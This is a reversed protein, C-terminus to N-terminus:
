AEKIFALAKQYDEETNIDIGSYTTEIMRLPIDMEILRNGELKEANELATSQQQAFSVLTDKTFAYVGIHKYFTPSADADRYYPIPSRSFYCADGHINVVVKVCNPNKYLGVDTYRRMLSAATASTDSEFHSVLPELSARDIFPEDGQINLIVDTDIDNAIAAIRDTGCAYSNPDLIHPINRESLHNAIAVSDTVIRVDDFLETAVASRYTREIISYRGLPKLLKGEFRQSDYRAPILCTCKM